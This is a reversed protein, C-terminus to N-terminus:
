NKHYINTIPWPKCKSEFNLDITRNWKEKAFPLYHNIIRSKLDLLPASNAYSYVTSHWAVQQLRPLPPTEKIETWCRPPRDMLVRGGPLCAAATAHAIWLCVVVLCATLLRPTPSGYAYSWWAPLWCGHRPRDMLVRGGPLWCGHRPHDVLVRGGPLCDVVTAHAIWLCMVVMAYVTTFMWLNWFTNARRGPLEQFCCSIHSM